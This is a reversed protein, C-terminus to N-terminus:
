AGIIRYGYFFSELNSSSRITPSSDSSDLYIEVYDNDDMEIIGHLDLGADGGNSDPRTIKALRETGNKRIMLFLSSASSVSVCRLSCGIMYKGAVTPTFRNSAYKGDSDFTETNFTILTATDASISQNGDTKHALFAPTNKMDSGLTLTPTNTNFDVTTGSAFKINKSSGGLTVDSSGSVPAITNVELTSM